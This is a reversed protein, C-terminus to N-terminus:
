RSTERTSFLCDWAESTGAFLSLGAPGPRACPHAQFQRALEAAAPSFYVQVECHLRGEGDHRKFIAMDAPEGARRHALAFATEIHGLPEWALMGDGLNRVQWGSM